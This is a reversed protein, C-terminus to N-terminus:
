FKYAIGTIIENAKLTGTKYSGYIARTIRDELALTGNNNTTFRRPKYVSM